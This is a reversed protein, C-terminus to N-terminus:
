AYTCMMGEIRAGHEGIYLFEDVATVFDHYDGMGISAACPDSVEGIAEFDVVNGEENDVALCRERCDEGEKGYEPVDDNAFLNLNDMTMATETTEAELSYQVRPSHSQPRHKRIVAQKSKGVRRAYERVLQQLKYQAVHIMDDTDAM